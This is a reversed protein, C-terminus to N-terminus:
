YGLRRACQKACDYDHGWMSCFTDYIAGPVAGCSDWILYSTGQCFLFGELSHHEPGVRGCERMCADFDRNNLTPSLVSCAGSPCYTQGGPHWAMGTTGDARSYYSWYEGRADAWRGPNGKVYGYVSAGDVLGLPDAQIYRGTTPDYDRMWNQYLGSEAQFWQGPFRASIPTGTSATAGGFPSYALTWVM